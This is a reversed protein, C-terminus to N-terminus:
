MAGGVGLQRRDGGGDAPPSLCVAACPIQAVTRNIGVLAGMEGLGPRVQPVIPTIETMVSILSIVSQFTLLSESNRASNGCSLARLRNRGAALVFKAGKTYAPPRVGFEVFVIAM